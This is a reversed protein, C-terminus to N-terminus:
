FRKSRGQEASLPLWAPLWRPSRGEPIGSPWSCRAPVRGLDRVSRFPGPHGCLYRRILLNCNPNCNLATRRRGPLVSWARQDLRFRDSGHRGSSSIRNPERQDANSDRLASSPDIKSVRISVVAMSSRPHVHFQDGVAVRMLLDIRCSHGVSSLRSRAVSCISPLWGAFLAGFPVRSICPIIEHAAALV